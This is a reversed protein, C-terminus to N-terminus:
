RKTTNILLQDFIDNYSTAFHQFVKSTLPPNLRFDPLHAVFFLAASANM